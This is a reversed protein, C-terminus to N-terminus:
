QVACKNHSQHHRDAHSSGGVGWVCGRMAECMDALMTLASLPVGVAAAAALLAGAAALVALAAALVALASCRARQVPVLQVM